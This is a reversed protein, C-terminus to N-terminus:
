SWGLRPSAMVGKTRTICPSVTVTRHILTVCQRHKFFILTRTSEAVELTFEMAFGTRGTYGLMGVLILFESFRESDSQQSAFLPTSYGLQPLSLFISLRMTWWNGAEAQQFHLSSQEEWWFGVLSKLSIGM